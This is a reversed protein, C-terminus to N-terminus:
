TLDRLDYEPRPIRYQKRQVRSGVTAQPPKPWTGTKNSTATESPGEMVVSTHSTGAKPEKGSIPQSAVTTATPPAASDPSLGGLEATLDLVM